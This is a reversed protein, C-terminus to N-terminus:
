EQWTPYDSKGTVKRKLIKFGRKLAYPGVVKAARQRIGALDRRSTPM